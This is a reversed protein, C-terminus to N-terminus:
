HTIILELCRIRSLDAVNAVKHNITIDKSATMDFTTGATAVVPNAGNAVIASSVHQSSAATVQTLEVELLADTTGAAMVATLLSTGGLAITITKTDAAGVAEWWIRLKFGTGRLQLENAAVTRTYVLVDTASQTSAAVALVEKIPPGFGLSEATLKDGAHRSGSRLAMDLTNTTFTCTSTEVDSNFRADIGIATNILVSSVAHVRSVHNVYVGAGTQASCYCYDVHVMSFEQALAGYTGGLFACGTTGTAEAVTGNYGLNGRSHRQAQFCAGNATTNGFRGGEVRFMTGNSVFIGQDCNDAWVNVAYLEGHTDVVLGSMLASASPSAAAKYDKFQIDEVHVRIYNQFSFGQVGNAGAQFITTPATGTSVAAGLFQVRQTSPFAKSFTATAVTYTGAAHKVQWIADSHKYKYITNGAALPTAFPEGSSLGDNSDSAASAAVYLKNTVGTRPTVTFLDSGRKVVGPGFHKVDHFNAISATTLYTGAPWYLEKGASYAAAVAAAVATQDSTTGDGVTGYDAVNLLDAFRAALTRAVSAGTPTMAMTGTVTGNIVPATITPTGGLTYTGTVTGSFVPSPYTQGSEAKDYFIVDSSNLSDFTYGTKVYTIDYRGAAAYFEVTGDSDNTFPNTHSGGANNSYITSLNTTGADYVTVTVGSLANGANDQVLNTYKQM